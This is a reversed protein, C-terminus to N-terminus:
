KAKGATAARYADPGYHEIFQTALAPNAKLDAVAQPDPPPYVRASPAELWRDKEQDYQYQPMQMGTAPNVGGGTPHMRHAYKTAEAAITAQKEASAAAIEHGRNAVEGRVFEEAIKGATPNLAFREAQAKNKQFQAIAADGGALVQPPVYDTGDLLLGNNNVQLRSALAPNKQLVAQYADYNNRLQDPGIPNGDLTVGQGTVRMRQALEPHRDLTSRYSDYAAQSLAGVGPIDMTTTGGAPMDIVQVAGALPDRVRARPAVPAGTAAAAQAPAMTPAGSARQLSAYAAQLKQAYQPDTAYGGGTLAGAFKGMDNGAGVAETYRRNVLDVYRDAFDQPSGYSAYNDKTGDMNDTAAVGSQGKVAKINGLNNTGPIVHEGWGTEQGWHALLVQPDVGLKAGAAQAVPGYQQAFAAIKANGNGAPPTGSTTADLQGATAKDWGDQLAQQYTKEVADRRGQRDGFAAIRAADEISPGAARAKAEDYQRALSADDVQTSTNAKGDVSVARIRPYGLEDKGVVVNKYTKGDQEFTAGADPRGDIVSVRELIAKDHDTPAQVRIQNGDRTEYTTSGDKQNTTQYYAAKPDANEENAIAALADDRADAALGRYDPLQRKAPAPAPAPAPAAAPKNADAKAPAAVPNKVIATADVKAAPNPGQKPAHDAIVSAHPVLKDGFTDHLMKDYATSVPAKGPVVYDLLNAASSGLDMLAEKGGKVLSKGAGSFDGTAVAKLTGLASSDVGPENLKYDNMHTLVEGAALVPAARGVVPLARAAMKGAGYAARALPSAGEGLGVAEAAAPAAAAAAPAAGAARAAAAGAGAAGASAAGPGPTAGPPTPTLGLTQRLSGVDIPPAGKPGANIRAAAAARSQQAKYDDLGIRSRASNDLAVDGNANGYMTNASYGPPPNPAPLARPVPPAGLAPPSTPAASAGPAAPLTTRPVGPARANGAGDVSIASPDPALTPAPAPLLQAQPPAQRAAQAISGLRQQAQQELPSPNAARGQLRARLDSQPAAAPADPAAPPQYGLRDGVAARDLNAQNAGVNIRDRLSGPAAAGGDSNVIIPAQGPAPPASRAAVDAIRSQVARGGAQRQPEAAALRDRLGPQSASPNQLLEDDPIPM